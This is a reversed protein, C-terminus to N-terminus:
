AISVKRSLNCSPSLLIEQVRGADAGLLRLPPNGIAVRVRIRMCKVFLARDPVMGSVSKPCLMVCDKCLLYRDTLWIEPDNGESNPAATPM